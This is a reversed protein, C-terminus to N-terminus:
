IITPPSLAPPPKATATVSQARSLPSTAIAKWIGNYGMTSINKLYEDSYAQPSSEIDNGNFDALPSRIIRPTFQFPTQSM